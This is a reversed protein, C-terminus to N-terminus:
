FVIQSSREPSFQRIFNLAHPFLIEIEITMICYIFHLSRVDVFFHRRCTADRAAAHESDSADHKMVACM